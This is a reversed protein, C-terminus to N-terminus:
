VAVRHVRDAISTLCEYAITDCWSALEWATIEESGQCGLLVVDQGLSCVDLGKENVIDTVDVMMLDMCVRGVIPARLGGCLVHGRGSAARAYGDAYGIGLVAIETERDTFFTSGYSIPTGKPVRKRIVIPAKWTLAPKLENSFAGDPFPSVGYLALGPRCAVRVNRQRAVELAEGVEELQSLSAASNKLHLTNITPVREMLGAAHESFIKMQAQTLDTSALDANAFHSMVGAVQLYPSMNARNAVVDLGPAQTEHLGIGERGMGTDIGLHVLLEGDHGCTEAHADLREVEELSSLVPTLRAEWLMEPAKLWGAGGLLLIEGDISARRLAIGEDLTAVAFRKVGANAFAHAVLRIGHGYGNAKVVAIIENPAIARGIVKVNHALASFKVEAVSGTTTNNLSHLTEHM